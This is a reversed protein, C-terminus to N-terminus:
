KSKEIKQRWTINCEQRRTLRTSHVLKWERRDGVLKLTRCRSWNKTLDQPRSFSPHLNTWVLHKRWWFPRRYLFARGFFYHTSNRTISVRAKWKVPNKAPFEPGSLWTAKSSFKLRELIPTSVVVGRSVSLTVNVLFFSIPTAFCLPNRKGEVRPTM